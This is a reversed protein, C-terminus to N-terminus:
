DEIHGVYPPHVSSVLRTEDLLPAVWLFHSGLHKIGKRGGEWTPWRLSLCWSITQMYRETCHETCSNGYTVSFVSLAGQVNMAPKM